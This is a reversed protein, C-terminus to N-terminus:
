IQQLFIASGNFLCKILQIFNTPGLSPTRLRINGATRDTEMVLIFNQSTTVLVNAVDEFGHVCTYSYRIDSSQTWGIIYRVKNTYINQSDWLAGSMEEPISLEQFSFHQSGQLGLHWFHHLYIDLVLVRTTSTANPSCFIYIRTM